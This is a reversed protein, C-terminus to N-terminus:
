RRVCDLRIRRVCVDHNLRCSTDSDPPPASRLAVHAGHSRQTLATHASHSRVELDVLPWGLLVSVALGGVAAGVATWMMSVDIGLLIPCFVILTLMSHLVKSVCSHIGAAFRSTDEHIRQSAGEIAPVQTNYRELYSRMLARRWRFVWWNRILGAVPHVVVAPAVLWAFGVLQQWVQARAEAYSGSGSEFAGGDGSGQEVHTQLLDYFNGYFDNVAGSLWAKFIQHGLFVCLGLWAFVKHESAYFYERLM